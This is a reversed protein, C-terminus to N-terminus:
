RRDRRRRGVRLRLGVRSPLSPLVVAPARRRVRGERRRPVGGGGGGRRSRSGRGERNRPAFDRESRIVSRGHRSSRRSDSSVLRSRAFQTVIERRRHSRRHRVHFGHRPTARALHQTPHPQMLAATAAPHRSSPAAPLSPPPFAIIPCPYMEGVSHHLFPSCSITTTM